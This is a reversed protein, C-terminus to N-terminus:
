SYGMAEMMEYHDTEVQRRQGESLRAPTPDFFGDPTKESAEGFGLEREQAQLRERSCRRVAREIREADPRVNVTVLIRELADAPDRVMDEYRVLTVRYAAPAGWSRVHNSWSSLMHRPRGKDGICFTDHRLDAIADDLSKGCHKAWSPAVDRPDRVLYVSRGSMPEPIMHVGLVDVRAHHTKVVLPNFRTTAELNVLAAWRLWLLQRQSLETIPHSSAAQYFARASDGVVPGYGNIDPDADHHYAQVLMRAWTSGSKPYSALWHIM